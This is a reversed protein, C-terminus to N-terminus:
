VIKMEKLVTKSILKALAKMKDEETPTLPASKMSSFEARVMKAAETYLDAVTYTKGKAKEVM